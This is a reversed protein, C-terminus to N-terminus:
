INKLVELIERASKEWSFQQAHNKAKVSLLQRLDKDELLKQLGKAIAEINNPDVQIGGDGVAEPLSSTNSTLVAVGFQQAEIVPLGFGEYLSPYAFVAASKYLEGLDADTVYGLVKVNKMNKMQEFEKDANWGKAGVIVLPYEEKLTNSLLEHAQLLNKLNKRPELTGVFLIYKKPVINQPLKGGTPFLTQGPYIVKIKAEDIKLIKILDNKTSESIAIIKKAQACVLKVRRNHRDSVEQGRQDPYLFTALDHIVVVQPIKLSMKVEFFSPALLLDAGRYLSDYFPLDLGWLTEKIGGPIHARRLNQGTEQFSKLRNEMDVSDRFHTTILSYENEHDVKLLGAVMERTFRGIGAGEIVARTIDITINM